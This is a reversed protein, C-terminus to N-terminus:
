IRGHNVFCKRNSEHTCIIQFENGNVNENSNRAKIRISRRVTNSNDNNNSEEYYSGCPEQKQFIGTRRIYAPIDNIYIPGAKLKDQEKTHQNTQKMSIYEKLNNHCESRSCNDSHTSFEIHDPEICPNINKRGKERNYKRKKKNPKKPTNCIHSMEKGIPIDQGNEILEMMKSIQYKYWTEGDIKYSKYPEFVRKCPIEDGNEIGYEHIQDKFDDFANRFKRKQCQNLSAM